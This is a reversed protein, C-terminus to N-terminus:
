LMWRGRIDKKGGTSNESPNRGKGFFAQLKDVSEKNQAIYIVTWM